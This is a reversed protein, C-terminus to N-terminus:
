NYYNKVADLAKYNIDIEYKKKIYNDYTNFLGSTLKTKTLNLYKKYVEPKEDITVNVIKDIYILFNETLDINHVVIIKKESFDYIQNISFVYNYFSIQNFQGWFVYALYISLGVQVTLKHFWRINYNDDLVGLIISIVGGIVFWIPLYSNYLGIILIIISFILGGILSTNTKHHKRENPIDYKYYKSFKKIIINFITISFCFLLLNQSM